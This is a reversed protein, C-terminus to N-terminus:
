QVEWGPCGPLPLVDIPSWVFRFGLTFHENVLELALTMCIALPHCTDVVMLSSLRTLWVGLTFYSCSSPEVNFVVLSSNCTNGLFHPWYLVTVCAQWKRQCWPSQECLIRGPLGFSWNQVNRHCKVAITHFHAFVKDWVKAVFSSATADRCHVM